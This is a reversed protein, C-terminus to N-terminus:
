FKFFERIFNVFGIVLYSMPIQSFNLGRAVAAKLALNRIFPTQEYWPNHENPNRVPGSGDAMHLRDRTPGVNGAALKNYYDASEQGTSDLGQTKRFDPVLQLSNNPIFGMTTDMGYAATIGLEGILGSVSDDAARKAEASPACGSIVFALFVLFILTRNM